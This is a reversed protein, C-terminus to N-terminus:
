RFAPPFAPATSCTPALGIVAELLDDELLGARIAKEEGGRFQVGHPMVTAIVGGDRTVALMYQVFM